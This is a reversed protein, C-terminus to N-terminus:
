WMFFLLPLCATVKLAEIPQNCINAAIIVTNFTRTEPQLGELYVLDLVKIAEQWRGLKGYVDVLTNYTVVNAACGEVQVCPAHQVSTTFVCLLRCALKSATTVVHM